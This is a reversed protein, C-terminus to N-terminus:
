KWYWIYLGLWIFRWTVILIMVILYGLLFKDANFNRYPDMYAHYGAHYRVTTVSDITTRRFWKKGAYVYIPVLGHRIGIKNQGRGVKVRKDIVKVSIVQSNAFIDKDRESSQYFLITGMILCILFLIWGWFEKKENKM